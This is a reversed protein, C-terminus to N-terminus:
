HDTVEVPSSDTTTADVAGMASLHAVIADAEAQQDASLEGKEAKISDILALVRQGAATTAADIKAFVQEINDMRKGQTKTQTINILSLAILILLLATTM